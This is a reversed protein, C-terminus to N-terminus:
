LRIGGFRIVLLTFCCLRHPIEHTVNRIPNSYQASSMGCSCIMVKLTLFIHTVCFAGIGIKKSWTRLM